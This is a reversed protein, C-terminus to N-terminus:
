PTARGGGLEETIWRVTTYESINPYKETEPYEAAVVKYTKIFSSGGDTNADNDDPNSKLRVFIFVIGLILVITAAISGWLVGSGISGTGREKINDQISNESRDLIKEDIESMSELLDHENM